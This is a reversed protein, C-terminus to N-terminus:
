AHSPILGLCEYVDALCEVLQAVVMARMDITKNVWTRERAWLCMRVTTRKLPHGLSLECVSCM